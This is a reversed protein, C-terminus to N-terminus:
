KQFALLPAHILKGTFIGLNKKWWIKNKIVLFTTGVTMANASLASFISLSLFNFAFFSSISLISASQDLACFSTILDFSALKAGTASKSALYWWMIINVLHEILHENLNEVLNLLKALMVLERDHPSFYKKRRLEWGIVRNLYYLLVAFPM